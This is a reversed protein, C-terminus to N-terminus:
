LATVGQPARAPRAGSGAGASASARRAGGATIARRAHDRGGRRRDGAGDGDAALPRRGLLRAGGVAIRCQRCAAPLGYALLGARLAASAPGFRVRTGGEVAMVLAAAAADGPLRCASLCCAIAGLRIVRSALQFSVVGTVFRRPQRLIAFGAAIDRYLRQAVRHALLGAALVVAVVGVAAVCAVVAHDAAAHPARAVEDVPLYGATLAWALLAAGTCCEFLTEPVFTASVTPLRADPLRRRVLAVKVVDGARAPVIANVGGGAFAAAQVDRLRLARHAPSAARLVTHWGSNRVVDALLHLALGAALLPVDVRRGAGTALEGLASLIDAVGAALPDSPM